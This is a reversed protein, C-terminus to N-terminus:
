IEARRSSVPKLMIDEVADDHVKFHGIRQVTRARRGDKPVM